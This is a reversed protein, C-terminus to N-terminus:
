CSLSLFFYDDVFTGSSNTIGVKVKNGGYGANNDPSPDTNSAWVISSATASCKAVNRDFVVDYNGTSTKTVSVVGSAIGTYITGSPSVAVYAPKTYYGAVDAFVNAKGTVRLNFQESGNLPMTVMNAIAAVGFNLLSALPQPQGTEWGQVYGGSTVPVAGLNVQVAEANTPIGCGAANGGQAALGTRASFTRTANHLPGGGYRTDLIRCPAVAHFVFDSGPSGPPVISLAPGRNGSPTPNPSSASQAAAGGAALITALAGLTLVRRTRSSLQHM